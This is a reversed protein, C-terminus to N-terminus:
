IRRGSTNDRCIYLNGGTLQERLGIAGAIQHDKDDLAQDILEEVAPADMEELPKREYNAQM